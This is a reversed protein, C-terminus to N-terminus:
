NTILGIVAPVAIVIVALSVLARTLSPSLKKVKEKKLWGTHQLRNQYLVYILILIGANGVWALGDTDVGISSYLYRLLAGGIVGLFFIILGVRLIEILYRM